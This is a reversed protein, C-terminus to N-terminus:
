TSGMSAACSRSSPRRSRSAATCGSNECECILELPEEDVGFQKGLEMIRDNVARFLDEQHDRSPPL